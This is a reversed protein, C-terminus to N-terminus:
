EIKGEALLKRAVYALAKQPTHGVGFLGSRVEADDWKNLWERALVVDREEPEPLREPWTAGPSQARLRELLATDDPLYFPHSAELRYQNERRWAPDTFCGIRVWHAGGVPMWEVWDGIKWGKPPEGTGYFSPGMVRDTM